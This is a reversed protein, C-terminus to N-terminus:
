YTGMRFREAFPGVPLFVDEPCDISGLNRDDLRLQLRLELKASQTYTDTSHEWKTTRSM